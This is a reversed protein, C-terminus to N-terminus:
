AVAAAVFNIPNLPATGNSTATAVVSPGDGSGNYAVVAFQYSNGATLGTIIASYHVNGFYSVTAVITTFDIVGPSPGQYVHFGTPKSPFPFSWILQVDGSAVPTAVLAVPSLPQNTVDAGSANILIEVTCDTNGDDLM